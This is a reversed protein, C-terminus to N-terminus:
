LKSKDLLAPRLYDDRVDALVDLLDQNMEAIMAKDKATISGNLFQKEAFNVNVLLTRELYYLQKSVVIDANERQVDPTNTEPNM